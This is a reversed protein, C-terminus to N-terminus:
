TRNSAPMLRKLLSLDEPSLMGQGDDCLNLLPLAEERARDEAARFAVTIPLDTATILLKEPDSSFTRPLSGWALRYAALWERVLTLRDAPAPIDSLAALMVAWGARSGIVTKALNAWEEGPWGHRSPDAWVQLWETGARALFHFAPLDEKMAMVNILRLAPRVAPGFLRQGPDSASLYGWLNACATNIDQLWREQWPGKGKRSKKAHPAINRVKTGFALAQQWSPSHVEWWTKLPGALQATAIQGPKALSFYAIWPEQWGVNEPQDPQDRALTARAAAYAYRACADQTLSQGGANQSGGDSWLARWCERSIPFDDLGERDPGIRNLFDPHLIEDVAKDVYVKAGRLRPDDFSLGLMRLAFLQRSFLYRQLRRRETPTPNDLALTATATDVLAIIDDASKDTTGAVQLEHRFSNGMTEITLGISRPTPPKGSVDRRQDLLERCLALGDARTRTNLRLQYVTDWDPSSRLYTLLAKSERALPRRDPGVRQQQAFRTPQRYVAQGLHWSAELVSEPELQRDRNAAVVQGRPFLIPCLAHAAHRHMEAQILDLDTKGPLRQVATRGSNTLHLAGHRVVLKRECLETVIVTYDSWEIVDDHGRRGNVVAFGAQETFGFRFIALEKLVRAAAESLDTVLPEPDTAEPTLGAPPVILVRLPLAGASGHRNLAAELHDFKRDTARPNLLDIFEHNFESAFARSVRRTTLGADDFLIVLDPSSAAGVGADAARNCLLKALQDAAEDRDSWRFDDWWSESADLMEALAAWLRLHNDGTATRFTLVGLGPGRGGGQDGSRIKADKWAVWQALGDEVSAGNLIRRMRDQQHVALHRVQRSDLPALLADLTEMQADDRSTWQNGSYWALDGPPLKAKEKPEALADRIVLRRQARGLSWRFGPTRLHAMRRWGSPQMADAAARTSRAFNIEITKRAGEKKLDELFEVIETDRDASEVSAMGANPVADSSDTEYTRRDGPVVVRPVGIRNAYTLKAKIGKVNEVRVESLRHEVKGTCIAMPLDASPLLRALACQTWYAEASRDEVTFFQRKAEIGQWEDPKIAGYVEGVIDCAAHLDVRLSAHRKTDVMERDAQALRGNQSSWLKKGADLGIGFARRWETTFGFHKNEIHAPLEETELAFRHRNKDERSRRGNLSLYEFWVKQGGADAKTPHFTSNGDEVVFFRIPLSLGTGTRDETLLPWCFLSSRYGICLRTLWVEVRDRQRGAAQWLLPYLDDIARLAANDPRASNRSADLAADLRDRLPQGNPGSLTEIMNRLGPTAEPAARLLWKLFKVATLQPRRLLYVAHSILLRNLSNSDMAERQQRQQEAETVLRSLDEAKALLDDFGYDDLVQRNCYRTDISAIMALTSDSLIGKRLLTENKLLLEVCARNRGKFKKDLTGLLTAAFTLSQDVLWQGGLPMPPLPLADPEEPASLPAPDFQM